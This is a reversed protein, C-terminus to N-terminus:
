IYFIDLNLTLAIKMEHTGNDIVTWKLTIAAKVAGKRSSNTNNHYSTLKPGKNKDMQPFNHRRAHTKKAM